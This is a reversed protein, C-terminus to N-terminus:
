SGRFVLAPGASRRAPSRHLPRLRLGQAAAMRQRKASASGAARPPVPGGRARRNGRGAPTMSRAAAFQKRVDPPPGLVEPITVGPRWPSWPQRPRRASGAFFVNRLGRATSAASPKRKAISRLPANMAAACWPRRAFDPLLGPGSFTQLSLRCFRVVQENLVAGCTACAKVAADVRSSEGGTEREGSPRSAKEADKGSAPPFPDLGFRAAYDIAIPKHQQALATAFEKLTDASIVKALKWVEGPVSREIWQKMRAGFMDM